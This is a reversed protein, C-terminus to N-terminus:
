WGATTPRHCLSSPPMSMASRGEARKKKAAAEMEAVMDQGGPFEQTSMGTCDDRKTWIECGLEKSLRKMPEFPTPLHALHKRPFRALHM